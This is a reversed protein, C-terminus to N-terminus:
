SNSYNIHEVSNSTPNFYWIVLTISFDSNHLVRIESAALLLGCYIFFM